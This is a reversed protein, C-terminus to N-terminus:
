MTDILALWQRAVNSHTANKSKAARELARKAPVRRGAYYNGIGILLYAQGTDKLKGTKVAAEASDIAMDWKEEELLLQTLRLYLDPSRAIKAAQQLPSIAKQTEKSRVYADALIKLHEEDRPITKKKLEAELVEAGKLPVDQYIFMQALQKINAPKTLFGGEYALEFVALARKEDNLESYLGGLQLWYSAKPYLEVLRKLTTIMDRKKKLEYQVAGLSTLWNEPPTKKAAVAVALQNLAKNWDKKQIYAQSIIFRTEPKPAEAQQLWIEFNKVADNWNEIAMYLQGLNFRMDLVQNEELADQALAKEFATAAPKYKNQMFYLHGFAQYMMATERDDLRGERDKMRNLETLAEEYKSENMAEFAGNLRKYAWESVQARAEAPALALVSALLIGPVITRLVRSM